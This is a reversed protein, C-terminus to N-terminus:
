EAALFDPPHTASRALRAHGLAVRLQKLAIPRRLYDLAGQRLAEVAVGMSVEDTPLEVDTMGSSVVLIECRPDAARLAMLPGMGEADGLHQSLVAVAVDGRQVWELARPGAPMRSVEYGEGEFLQALEEDSALEGIILLKEVM